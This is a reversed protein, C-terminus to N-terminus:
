GGGAPAPVMVVGDRVPLRPGPDSALRASGTRGDHRWTVDYGVVQDRQGLVLTDGPDREARMTAVEGDLEYTVDYGVLEERPADETRCTRESRVESRQSRAQRREQIERGAFAGGVAGAATAVRRGSGSGVQNGLLGGIVAGAVTGAVRGPDRPDPSQYVVERDECVERTGTVTRTVAESAVVRAVVDVTQTVPQVDIVEAHEGRTVQWAAVAGGAVLVTALAAAIPTKM